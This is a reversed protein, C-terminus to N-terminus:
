HAVLVKRVAVVDAAAYRCFYVGKPVLRGSEDARNWTATAAGDTGATCDLSRIVNGAADHIQVVPRGTGVPQLRVTMEGTVVSPSVTLRPLPTVTPKPEEVGGYGTGYFKVMPVVVGLCLSYWTDPKPHPHVFVKHFAFPGVYGHLVLTEPWASVGTFVFTDMPPHSGWGPTLFFVDPSILEVSDALVILVKPDLVGVFEIDDNAVGFAFLSFLVVVLGVCRSNM